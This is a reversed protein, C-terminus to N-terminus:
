RQSCDSGNRFNRGDDKADVKLYKIVKKLFSVKVFVTKM